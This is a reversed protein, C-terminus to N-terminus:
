FKRTERADLQEFAINGNTQYEVHWAPDEPLLIYDVDGGTYLVNVGKTHNTFGDSPKEYDAILAQNDAIAFMAVPHNPVAGTPDKLQNPGRQYYGVKVTKNTEGINDIGNKPDDRLFDKETSPCYFCEAQAYEDELLVGYHRYKDSPDGWIINCSDGPSLPLRNKNDIAFSTTGMGVEKLQAACKTRKSAERALSLAPMLIAALVLILALAILMEVLSFGVRHTIGRFAM